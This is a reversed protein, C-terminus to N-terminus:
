YQHSQCMELALRFKWVEQPHFILNLKQPAFYKLQVWESNYENSVQEIEFIDHLIHVNKIM